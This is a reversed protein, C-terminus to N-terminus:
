LSHQSVIGTLRADAFTKKEIGVVWFHWIKIQSVRTEFILYLASQM